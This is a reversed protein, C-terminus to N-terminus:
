NAYETLYKIVDEKTGDELTYYKATTAMDTRKVYEVIM